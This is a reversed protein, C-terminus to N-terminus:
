DKNERRRDCSIKENVVIEPTDGLHTHTHTHTNTTKAADSQRRARHRVMGQKQRCLAAELKQDLRALAFTDFRCSTFEAGDRKFGKFDGKM